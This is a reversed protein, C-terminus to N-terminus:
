RVETPRSVYVITITLCFYSPHSCLMSWPPRCDCRLEPPPFDSPCVSVDYGCLRQLQKPFHRAIHPPAQPGTVRVRVRVRACVCVCVCLSLSLSLSILIEVSVTAWLSREKASAKSVSLVQIEEEAIFGANFDLNMGLRPKDTSNGGASHYTMGSIFVVSGIPMEAYVAESELPV